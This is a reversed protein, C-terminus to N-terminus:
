GALRHAGRQPTTHHSRSRRPPTPCTHPRDPASESQPSSYFAAVPEEALVQATREAQQLGLDSLRFRPLRGYLIDAPNHVDTHRVIYLTTSRHDQPQEVAHQSKQLSM